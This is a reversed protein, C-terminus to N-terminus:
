EKRDEQGQGTSKWTELLTRIVTVSDSECSYEAHFVWGRVSKEQYDEPRRCYRKATRRAYEVAAGEDSFTAVCPDSHRDLIMVVFVPEPTTAPTATTAESPTPIPGAWEMDPWVGVWAHREMSHWCPSGTFMRVEAVAWPKADPTRWCYWGDVKPKEKTWNM